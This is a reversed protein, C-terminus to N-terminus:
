SQIQLEGPGHEPVSLPVHPQLQLTTLMALGVFGPGDPAASRLEGVRREGQWLPAPLAPITGEGSVRRLQRRVQGLNKLRAMVEQGLYCGKTFSIAHRELGAENPLDAPGIDAPVAAIGATIREWEMRAPTAEENAAFHSRMLPEASVPFVLETCADKGRRGAFSLSLESLAPGPNAADASYITLGRWKATEDEVQVDDAIIFAELRHQITAAASFYSGIWFGGDASKLVFSDAQVHGKRDLWLGYVARGGDADRLDNTFQGQLFERSDPGSVKLWAAPAWWFIRPGGASKEKEKADTM